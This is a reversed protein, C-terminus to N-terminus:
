FKSARSRRSSRTRLAFSKDLRSEEDAESGRKSCTTETQRLLAILREEAPSVQGDKCAAASRNPDITRVTPRDGGAICGTSRPLARLKGCDRVDVQDGGTRKILAMSCASTALSSKRYAAPMPWAAFYIMWMGHQPDSTSSCRFTRSAPRCSTVFARYRPHTCPRSDGEAPFTVICNGSMGERVTRLSRTSASAAQGYSLTDCAAVDSEAMQLIVKKQQKAKM